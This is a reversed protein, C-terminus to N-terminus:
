LKTKAPGNLLIFRLTEFGTAAYIDFLAFLHWKLVNQVKVIEGRYIGSFAM